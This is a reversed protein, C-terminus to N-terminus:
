ELLWKWLPIFAITKRKVKERSEYDETVVTGERLKFKKLVELLGRVEREKVEGGINYCVQIAKKIKTGETVLFDCEGKNKWYYIEKGRRKLELFVTNEYLKGMDQSFRFSIANRLGSDICYVKRPNVEQEKLSYSFKKIFFILCAYSLFYSFREVTDISLGIFKKIRNFSIPSSINTLYYTALTRLKAIKRIKHREVVDRSIVDDFYTTLLEKKEKNLIVVKPFGGFELYKRLLRKIKLKNSLLSAKDKIGLGNFFLFEGFSLPYVTLGLHRGTLVTGFEASLLKSSSGSVFITAEDREHLARVFKEWAPINQVEDLFLYPRGKPEIIELYAEYADQLLGLSLDKSFRPEEFNIYLTNKASLKKETLHKIFQSILTSKGSRRVGVLSIIQGTRELERMRKVYTRRPIGTKRPKKWFNWDSLIEIIREKQM